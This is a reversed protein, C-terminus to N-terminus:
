NSSGSKKGKEREHDERGRNFCKVNEDTESFKRSVIEKALGFRWHSHSVKVGHFLCKVCGLCHASHAMLATLGRGRERGRKTHGMNEM